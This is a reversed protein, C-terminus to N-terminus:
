DARMSETPAIGSARRAPVYSASVAVAALFLAVVGFTTPDLPHVRYLLSRLLPATVAAIVVGCAIGGVALALGQRVVLRRLGAPTDGLALRVGLERRRRAVAFAIVGYLGIGTLVLAALGIGQM